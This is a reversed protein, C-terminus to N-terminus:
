PNWQEFVAFFQELSKFGLGRLRDEASIMLANIVPSRARELDMEKTPEFDHFTEMRMWKPQKYAM